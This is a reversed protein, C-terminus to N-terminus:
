LWKKRRYYFYLAVGVGAMGLLALPYGWRWELEPMSRFNMGYIGTIFTLPIFITSIVTLVKMVENLRTTLLSLHNELMGSLVDRYTEVTDIVEITHDYVDKLYVGTSARILPSEARQLTNITERLPWVAKRLWIMERKLLHITRAVDGARNTLMREDLVEIQEGLQELLVFYGDVIADILFYALYDTGERRVRGKATRLRARIPNFADGAIGEQFSIVFNTGLILSVQESVVEQTAGRLSLMRVVIYLYEGYDEIKPRQSTNAIDELVLPHLGFSAGLRELLDIQHVGEVSIWTVGPRDLWTQCASVDTVEEEALQGSDYHMLRVRPAGTKREGIHVPTGPPLGSKRSRKHTSQRM